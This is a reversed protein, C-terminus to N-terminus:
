FGFYRFSEWNGESGNQHFEDLCILLLIGMKLFKHLIHQGLPTDWSEPHSFIVPYVGKFLDEIDVSLTADVGMGDDGSVEGSMSLLAAKCVDNKLKENMITSLPQTIIAVGNPIGLKERLVLTALLPVNMKGSGTPSVLIVSKLQGLANVALRQFDVPTYSMNVKKVVEDLITDVSSDILHEHDKVLIKECDEMVEVGANEYNRNALEHTISLGGNIRLVDLGVVPEEVEYNNDEESSPAEKDSDDDNFDRSGAGLDNM